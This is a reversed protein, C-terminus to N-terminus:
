WGRTVNITSIYMPDNWGDPHHWDKDILLDHDFTASCLRIQRAPYWLFQNTTYRGRQFFQFDTPIIRRLIHFFM